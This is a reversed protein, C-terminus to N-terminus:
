SSGNPNENEDPKVSTADRGTSTGTPRDSAGKTGADQRGAEDDQKAVDEGRRSISQGVDDPAADPDTSAAGPDASSGSSAEQTENADWAKQNGEKVADSAGGSKPSWGEGQSENQEREGM